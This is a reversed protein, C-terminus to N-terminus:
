RPEHSRWILAVGVDDTKESTGDILYRIRSILHDRVAVIAFRCTMVQGRHVLAAEGVM